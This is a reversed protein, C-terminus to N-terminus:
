PRRFKLIFQDTKMRIAPDFVTRSHDDAPNHLIDSEGVLQFGAATVESIVTARDIRHLQPSLTAGTGSGAAHDVIFFVGGPKLSNFVLKNFAAMDVHAYKPIHLDRATGL